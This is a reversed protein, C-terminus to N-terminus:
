IGPDLEGRVFFKFCLLPLSSPPLLIIRNRAWLKPLECTWGGEGGVGACAAARPSRWDPPQRGAHLNSAAEAGGGGRQEMTMM